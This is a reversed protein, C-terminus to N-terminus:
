KRPGTLAFMAGQPDMCQVIFAGGPVEMPGFLVKGGNSTVRAVAADIEDIVFYYLWFNVPVEAPKNFMGGIAPGGGSAAFLQYTGVPGMDMAQDKRWGFLDSYFAFAKEWDSAFLEHWGITGPSGPPPIVPPTPPPLPDLMALVAGQPDAVVSFRGVEPIDRPAVYVMGGLEAARATVADVDDVGVYGMWSPPAGMKRSEEPQAMMGAVMAEGALFLSYAMGPMGSDKATWGVVATYFAEAGATDTTMLEYWIFRGAYDSM